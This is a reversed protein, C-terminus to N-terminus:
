LAETNINVKTYNGMTNYVRIGAYEPPVEYEQQTKPYGDDSYDEITYGDSDTIKWLGCAADQIKIKFKLGKQGEKIVIPVNNNVNDACVVEGTKFMFILIFCITVCLQKVVSIVMSHAIKSESNRIIHKSQHYRDYMFNM